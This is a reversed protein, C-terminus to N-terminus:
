PLDLSILNDGPKVDITHAAGNYHLIRTGPTLGEFTHPAGASVVHTAGTILGSAPGYWAVSIDSASTTSVILRSAAGGDPALSISRAGNAPAHPNAQARPGYHAVATIFGNTITLRPLGAEDEAEVPNGWPDLLRTKGFPLRLYPGRWGTPVYVTPQVLDASLGPVLNEATAQRVAYPKADSPMLWLESLTSNTVTTRSSRDTRVDDAPRPLRGMDALFGTAEEGPIRSYVSARIEELQKDASKSLKADRLHSLERVALHTLVAIVALVVVLEVLTFGHKKM